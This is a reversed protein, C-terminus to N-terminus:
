LNLNNRKSKKLYAECADFNEFLISLTVEDKEFFPSHSISCEKSLKLGKARTLFEQEAKQSKPLLSSQLLDSLHQIRQPINLRESNLIAQINDKNLFAHITMQKKYAVDRILQFLRKQKGTGLNLASFLNVLEQFDNKSPLRLLEALIQETLKGNHIELLTDPAQNLIKEYNQEIFRNKPLDLKDKFLEAITSVPQFRSAIQFFRAKEALSLSNASYIHDDLLIHLIQLLELNEPIVLCDISSMAVANKSFNVRRYGCVVEYRPEKAQHTQMVVPPHLIGITELSYKLGQPLSNIAWPHLNWKISLDLTHLPINKPLLSM